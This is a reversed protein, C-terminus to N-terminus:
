IWTQFDKVRRRSIYVIRGDTLTIASAEINIGLIFTKNIMVSRNARKFLQNDTCDEYYKLNYGSMLRKGDSLHIVTYNKDSEMLIITKEQPLKSIIKPQKM